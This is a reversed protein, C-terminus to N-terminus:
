GAPTEGSISADESKAKDFPLVQMRCRGDKGCVAILGGNPVWGKVRSAQAETSPDFQDDLM